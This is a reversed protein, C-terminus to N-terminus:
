SHQLLSRKCSIGSLKFWIYVTVVAGITDAAVDWVSPFRGPIFSQHWEDSLGYAFCLLIVLMGIRCPYQRIMKGPVGYLATAALIGYVLMHLIKDINVVEPLEFTDGPQHSLFFITGMVVLMPVLRYYHWDHAM